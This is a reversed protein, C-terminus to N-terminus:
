LPMLPMLHLALELMIDRAQVPPVPNGDEDEEPETSTRMSKRQKQFKRLMETAEKEKKRYAQRAEIHLPLQEIARLDAYFKLDHLFEQYEASAGLYATAAAQLRPLATAIAPQATFPVPRIEDWPLANPLKSEGTDMYDSFAPLIIDPIVGRGQTSSGNIRYFKGITIKVSGTQVGRLMDSLGRAVAFREIETVTQVTGKGHTSREGIVLARGSDQLCAAVIEAASASFKDVLVILPGDYVANRDPDGQVSVRGRQSRVQVVPGGRMFIGSLEIAEDLSGGGNGRMDLIIGDPPTEPYSNQLLAIIDRTTSKYNKDGAARAAFDCYFSPLAISLVRAQRGDALPIQHHEAQAEQDKLKVEDRVISLVTETSSGDPLVTLHVRTGKPGRVQSVVKNLSMDIVDVSEKGEQAIAVIRDGDKLRGDKDAPGGPVISVVTTYGNKNTLVAGIGQLSLRMDIDFSEKSDPAMYVSHPDYLRSLANLYIELIELPEAETRRKYFRAFNKATREAFPEANVDTKGNKRYEASIMEGLLINKVRKRWREHLEPLNASWAEKEPDITITEPISFDHEAQLLGASAVAWERVRQLYRQYLKFAFDLNVTQTRADWLIAEYSGFEAIDEATFYIKNFDLAKFTEHYWRSSLQPTMPIGEFHGTGLMRVVAKAILSEKLDPAPVAAEAALLQETTEAGRLPLPLLMSWTLALAALIAPRMLKKLASIM